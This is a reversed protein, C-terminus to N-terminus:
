PRALTGALSERCKALALMEALATATRRISIVRDAKSSCAVGNTNITSNNRVSPRPALWSTVGPRSCDHMVILAHSRLKFGLFHFCVAWPEGGLAPEVRWWSVKVILERKAIPQDADMKDARSGKSKMCSARVASSCSAVKNRIETAGAGDSTEVEPLNDRHRATWWGAELWVDRTILRKSKRSSSTKSLGRQGVVYFSFFLVNFRRDARGFRSCTTM